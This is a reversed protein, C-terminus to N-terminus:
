YLYDFQQVEEGLKKAKMAAMADKKAGVLSDHLKVGARQAYVIFASRIAADSKLAMVTRKIGTKVAPKASAGVMEEPLGLSVMIEEVLQQFGQGELDEEKGEKLSSARTLLASHLALFATVRAPKSRMGQAADLVSERVEPKNLYMGPVGCLNLAEAVKDGLDSDGGITRMARKMSEINRDFTYPAKKEAPKKAETLRALFQSGFSMDEEGLQEVESCAIHEKLWYPLTDTDHTTDGARMLWERALKSNLAHKERVYKTIMELKTNETRDYGTAAEVGSPGMADLNMVVNMLNSYAEAEEPTPAKPDELDEPVKSETMSSLPDYEGVVDMEEDDDGGLGDFEGAADLDVDEEGDETKNKPWVVDIIDFDLALKNIAEEIDDELGLMKKMEEEFKDAEEANVYVKVIDGDDTELGFPVTDVEDNLEGARELYDAVNSGTIEGDSNITNRMLSFSVDTGAKAKGATDWQGADSSDVKKLNVAAPKTTVGFEKLLSM